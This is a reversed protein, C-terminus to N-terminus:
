EEIIARETLLDLFKTFHQHIHTPHHSHKDEWAETQGTGDEYFVSYNGNSTIEVELDIGSRHWELQISGTSTPVIAPIPTKDKMAALMIKLAALAANAQIKHAGYSDWNENLALITNLDDVSDSLWAPISGSAQIRLKPEASVNPKQQTRWTHHLRDPEDLPISTQPAFWLTRSLTSDNLCQSEEIFSVTANM